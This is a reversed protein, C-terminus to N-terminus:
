GNATEEDELRDNDAKDQIELLADAVICQAAAWVDDAQVCDIGEGDLTATLGWIGRATNADCESRDPPGPLRTQLHIYRREHQEGTTAPDRGYPIRVIETWPKFDSVSTDVEACVWGQATGAVAKVLGQQHCAPTARLPYSGVGSWGAFDPSSPGHVSGALALSKSGNMHQQLQTSTAIGQWHRADSLAVDAASSRCALNFSVTDIGTAARRIPAAQDVTYASTASPSRGRAGRLRRLLLRRM